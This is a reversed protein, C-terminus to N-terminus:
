FSRITVDEPGVENGHDIYLSNLIALADIWRVGSQCISVGSEDFSVGDSYRRGDAINM